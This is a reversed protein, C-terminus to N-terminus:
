VFKSVKAIQQLLLQQRNDLTKKIENLLNSFSNKILNETQSASNEIQEEATKVENELGKLASLYEKAAKITELIESKDM